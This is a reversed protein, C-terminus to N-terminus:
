SSTNRISSQKWRPQMTKPEKQPMNMWPAGSNGAPRIDKNIRHQISPLLLSAIFLPAPTLEVDVILLNQKGQAMRPTTTTLCPNSHNLITLMIMRRALYTHAKRQRTIERTFSSALPPHCESGLGINTNNNNNSTNRTGKSIIMPLPLLNLDICRHHPCLRMLIIIIIINSSSFPPLPTRIIM